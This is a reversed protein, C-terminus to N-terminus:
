RNLIDQLDVLPSPSRGFVNHFGTHGRYLKEHNKTALGCHVGKGKEGWVGNEDKSLFQPPKQDDQAYQDRKMLVSM